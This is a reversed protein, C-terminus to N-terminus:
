KKFIVGCLSTKIAKNTTFIYVDFEEVGQIYMCVIGPVIGPGRGCM